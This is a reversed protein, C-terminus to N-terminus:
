APRFHDAMRDLRWKEIRKLVPNAFLAEIDIQSHRTGLFVM